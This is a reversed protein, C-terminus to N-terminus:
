ATSDLFHHMLSASLASTTRYRSDMLQSTGRVSETLESYKRQLSMPPCPILWDEVTTKRMSPPDADSAFDSLNKHLMLGFLYESDLKSDPTIAMVNNDVCSPRVLIRKKNTAIAAGIKPFIISGAPFIKARLKQRIIDSVSNNWNHIVIENGPLNMDSVKLFPFEEGHVGQEKKPFGAGSGVSGLDGIRKIEWGMPNEVPDGFMRVFLAPIFERLRDAAQTRLREIKTARNLIGVIRRQEALPPLYIPLTLLSRPQIRERSKTAAATRAPLEEVINPARLRWGLYEQELRREDPVLCVFETSAIRNADGAELLTWVRNIRPNLKSFLVGREPLITKNSGIDSGFLQEPTQDDDFGPISYLEFLTNGFKRPDITGQHIDAVDGIQVTSRM